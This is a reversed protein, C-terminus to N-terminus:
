VHKINTNLLRLAVVCFDLVDLVRYEVTSYRIGVRVTDVVGCSWPKFLVYALCTTLLNTHGDAGAGWGSKRTDGLRGGGDFFHMLSLESPCM